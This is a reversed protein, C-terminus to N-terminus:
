YKEIARLLLPSCGNSTTGPKLAFWYHAVTSQNVNDATGVQFGDSIAAQIGNTALSYAGPTGSYGSAMTDIWVYAYIAGANKVLVFGPQFGAGTIDRDDSGNGTYTGAATHGSVTGFAVYHYTVGNENAVVSTGVQFGDAGFSQIRDAGNATGTFYAADDGSHAASRWCGARNTEAKTMVMAPQFGAGTINRSDSGNGTYTGVHFDGAGNDRVALYYYATGNTNVNAATGIQFGDSTFAQIANAVNAASTILATSDAGMTSTRWVTAESANPRIWVFDPQFGVGTIARDDSGNGTYSGTAVQM